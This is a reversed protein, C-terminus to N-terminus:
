SFLSKLFDIVEQRGHSEIILARSFNVNVHLPRAPVNKRTIKIEASNLNFPATAFVTADYRRCGPRPRGSVISDDIVIM